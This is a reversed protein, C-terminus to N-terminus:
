TGIWAQRREKLIRRRYPMFDAEHFWMRKMTEAWANNDTCKIRKGTTLIIRFIEGGVTALDVIDVPRSTASSVEQMLQYKYEPSFAAECLVALDVDSDPKAHGHALSGFLIALKIETHRELLQVLAQETNSPTTIEEAM